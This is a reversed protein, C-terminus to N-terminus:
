RLACQTVVPGASRARIRGVPPGGHASPSIGRGGGLSHVHESMTRPLGARWLCLAKPLLPNRRLKHWADIVGFRALIGAMSVSRSAGLWCLSQSRAASCDRKGRSWSTPLGGQERGTGLIFHLV